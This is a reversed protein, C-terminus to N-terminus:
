PDEIGSASFDSWTVVSPAWGVRDQMYRLAHAIDTFQEETYTISGSSLVGVAEGNPGMLGSGSDGQVVPPLFRAVVEWGNYDYELFTGDHPNTQPTPVTEYGSRLDSNGYDHVADGAHLGNADLVSTPGGYYRMAPHVSGVDKADIEALAFDNGECANVDSEHLLQMALFSSYALKGSYSEGNRAHFTVATGLPSNDTPCAESAPNSGTQFCHAALGLFYRTDNVHYLFNTTCLSGVQEADMGPRIDKGAPEGWARTSAVQAPLVKDASPAGTSTASTTSTSSGTSSASSTPRSTGTASKTTTLSSKGGGPSSTTSGTGQGDGDRAAGSPPTGCGALALGLLLAAALLCVGKVGTGRGQDKMAKGTAGDL